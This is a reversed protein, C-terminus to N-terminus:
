LFIDRIPLSEIPEMCDEPALPELSDLIELFSKRRETGAPEIVLRYGEKRIQATNGPLQFDDPIEIAQHGGNRFVRVQHEVSM